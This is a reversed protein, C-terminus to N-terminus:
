CTGAYVRGDPWWGFGKGHRANDEWQGIYGTGPWEHMSPTNLAGWAGWGQPQGMPNIEGMYYGQVTGLNLSVVSPRGGFTVKGDSPIM